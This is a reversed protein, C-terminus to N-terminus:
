KGLIDAVEVLEFQPAALAAHRLIPLHGSGIILLIRDEPSKRLRLLNSFIRLNRNYWSSLFGDVGPFAEGDGVEISGVLYHGHTLNITEARNAYLYHERLSHKLKLADQYDYLAKFRADWPLKELYTQNNKVAFADIDGREKFWRGNADVLHVKKHGLQKGLRFGLQYVENAKLEFKGDLYAQYEKDTGEQYKPKWELAIKTPKFKALLDVVEQIEKQRQPSFVDLHHKTKHSDLGADKFHFTGLMLIKAKPDNVHLLTEAEKIPDGAFVVTFMFPLWFWSSPQFLHKM